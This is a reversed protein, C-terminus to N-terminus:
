FNETTKVDVWMQQKSVERDRESLNARAKAETKDKNQEQHLGSRQAGDVLQWLNLNEYRVLSLRWSEPTSRRKKQM